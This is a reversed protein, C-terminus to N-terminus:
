FAKTVRSHQRELTEVRLIMGALNAELEETRQYLARKSSILSAREQKLHAITETQVALHQKNKEILTRLEEIREDQTRINIRLFAVDNRTLQLNAKINAVSELSAQNINHQHAEINDLNQQQLDFWSKSQNYLAELKQKFEQQHQEQQHHHPQPQQGQPTDHTM